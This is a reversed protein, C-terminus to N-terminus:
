FECPWTQPLNSNYLNYDAEVKCNTSLPRRQQLVIVEWFTDDSACILFIKNWLFVLNPEWSRWTKINKVMGHNVLDTVNRHTNTCSVLYIKSYIKQVVIWWTVLNPWHITLLLPLLKCYDKSSNPPSRSPEM